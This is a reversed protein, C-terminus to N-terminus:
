LATAAVTLSMQAMFAMGVCIVTAIPNLLRKESSATSSNYSPMRKAHSFYSISRIPPSVELELDPKIKFRVAM